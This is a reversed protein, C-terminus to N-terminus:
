DEDEEQRPVQRLQKKSRCNDKAYKKLYARSFVKEIRGPDGEFLKLVELNEVLTNFIQGCADNTKSNSQLSKLSDSIKMLLDEYIRLKDEVIRMKDDQVRLSKDVQQNNAGSKVDTKANAPSDPLLEEDDWEEHKNKREKRRPM